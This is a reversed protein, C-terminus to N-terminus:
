RQYDSDNDALVRTSVDRQSLIFATRINTSADGDLSDDDTSKAYTGNCSGDDQLSTVYITEYQVRDNSNNNNSDDDDRVIGNTSAHDQAILSLHSLRVPKSIAQIDDDIDDLFELDESGNMADTSDDLREKVVRNHRALDHLTLAHLPPLDANNASTDFYDKTTM